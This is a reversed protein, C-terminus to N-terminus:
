KEVDEGRSNLSKEYRLVLNQIRYRLLKGGPIPVVTICMEAETMRFISVSVPCSNRSTYCFISIMPRSMRALPHIIILCRGVSSRCSIHKAGLRTHGYVQCLQLHIEMPTIGQANMFKIMYRVKCDAPTPILVKMKLRQFSAVSLVRSTGITWEDHSTM